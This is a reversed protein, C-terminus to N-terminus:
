LMETIEERRQAGLRSLMSGALNYREEQGEDDEGATHFPFDADNLYKAINHLVACCVITKPINQIKQRVKYQLIPFRSKLQGFCREIVVRERSFIQNYRRQQETEPNRWPTMLWPRLPYGEDGLLLVNSTSNKLVTYIDSNKFFEVTM